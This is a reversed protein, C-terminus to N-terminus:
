LPTTTSTRYECDLYESGNRFSMLIKNFKTCSFQGFFGVSVCHAVKRYIVSDVEVDTVLDRIACVVRFLFSTDFSVVAIAM